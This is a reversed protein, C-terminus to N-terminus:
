QAIVRELHVTQNPLGNMGVPKLFERRFFQITQPFLQFRVNFEGPFTKVILEASAKALEGDMTISLKKNETFRNCGKKNFILRGWGNIIDNLKDIIFM